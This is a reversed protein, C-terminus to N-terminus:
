FGLILRSISFFIVVVLCDLITTILPTAMVAPDLKLKKALLPMSMGILNSCIIILVMTISISAALLPRGYQLWVRFFNIVSLILGISLSVRLEKLLVKIYDKMTIEGVAMGRIMLTSTQSGCNGATGMLLPLFAILVLEQALMAEFSSILLGTVIASLMLVILWIIRNKTHKLVNTKLYSEESPLLAAMTEFHETATEEVVDLVDDVTIIGVMRNDMDVVPLSEFDYKYFIKSVEQEHVGTNVLIVNKEMIEGITQNTEALILDRISLVGILKRTNDIVYCTNITEKDAALKKLRKFSEEVTMYERLDFFEPTMLSGATKEEYGLFYNIEERREPKISALIRNVVNAPLTEIIDITDDLYLDQVISNIEKESITEIILQQGEPQMHSFVEAATDKPLLRFAKLLMEQEKIKDLEEAIDVENLGILYQKLETFKKEGILETIKENPM